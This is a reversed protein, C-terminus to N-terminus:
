HGVFQPAQSPQILPERKHGMQAAALGGARAPEVDWEFVDGSAVQVLVDELMAREALGARTEVRGLEATCEVMEVCAADDEPVEFSLIDEEGRVAVEFQGVEAEGRDGATAEGGGNAAGWM